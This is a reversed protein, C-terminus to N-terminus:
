SFFDHWAREVRDRRSEVVSVLARLAKASFGDNYAVRIEPSIWFKAEMGDREVHVHVPERSNGENAYFFFRYGCHRFITPM